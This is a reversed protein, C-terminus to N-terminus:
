SSITLKLKIDKEAISLQQETICSNVTELLNHQAFSYVMKGAELKELDLLDNLLNLLRSGSDKINQFYELRKKDTLKAQRKVGLTAFSLISHMPTRIEHSMNALFESKAQNSKEALNKAKKLENQLQLNRMATYGYFLILAIASFSALISLYLKAQLHQFENLLQIPAHLPIMLVIIALSLTGINIAWNKGMLIGAMLPTPALWIVMPSFLGGSHITCWAPALWLSFVLLFASFKYNNKGLFLFALISSLTYFFPAIANTWASFYLFFLAYLPGLGISAWLYIKLIVFDADHYKKITFITNNRNLEM